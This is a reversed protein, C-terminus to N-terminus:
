TRPPSACFPNRGNINIKHMRCLIFYYLRIFGFYSTMFAMNIEVSISLKSIFQSHCVYPCPCGYHILLPKCNPQAVRFLCHIPIKLAPPINLQGPNKQHSPRYLYLLVIAYFIFVWPVLVRGSFIISNILSGIDLININLLKIM